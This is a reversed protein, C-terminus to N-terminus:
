HAEQLHRIEDRLIAAEEYRELSIAQIKNVYAMVLVPDANKGPNAKLTKCLNLLDHACYKFKPKRSLQILNLQLRNFEEFEGRRNADMMLGIYKQMIYEGIKDGSIEEEQLNEKAQSQFRSINLKDVQQEIFKNTYLESVYKNILM